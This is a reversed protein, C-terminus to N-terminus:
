KVSQVRSWKGNTCADYAVVQVWRVFTCGANDHAEDRGIETPDCRRLYGLVFKRTCSLTQRNRKNIVKEQNKWKRKRGCLQSKGEFSPGFYVRPVATRHARAATMNPRITQLM